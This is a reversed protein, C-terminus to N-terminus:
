TKKATPMDLKGSLLFAKALERKEIIKGNYYVDEFNILKHEYYEIFRDIIKSFVFSGKFDDYSRLFNRQEETEATIINEFNESKSKMSLKNGFLKHFINEFTYENISEEGLEPLVNSIYKSFLPNPSIVIVNNARLKLNLGQYM